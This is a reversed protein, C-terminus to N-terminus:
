RTCRKRCIIAIPFQAFFLVILLLRIIPYAELDNYWSPFLRVNSSKETYFNKSLLDGDLGEVKFLCKKTKCFALSSKLNDITSLESSKVIPEDIFRAYLYLGDKYIFLSGYVLYGTTDLLSALQSNNYAVDDFNFYYSLDLDALTRDGNYKLLIMEARPQSVVSFSANKFFNYASMEDEDNYSVFKYIKYMKSMDCLNNQICFLEDFSYEGAHRSFSKSYSIFSSSFVFLFDVLIVIIVILVNKCNEKFALRNRM